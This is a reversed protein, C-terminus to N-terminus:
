SEPYRSMYSYHKGLTFHHLTAPVTMVFWPHNITKVPPFISRSKLPVPQKTLSTNHVDWSNICFLVSFSQSLVLVLSTLWELLNGWALTCTLGEPITKCINLSTQDRNPTMTCARLHTDKPHLKVCRFAHVQILVTNAHLKFTHDIQM